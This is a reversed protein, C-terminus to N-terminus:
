EPALDIVPTNRSLDTLIYDLMAEVRTDFNIFNESKGAWMAWYKLDMTNILQATPHMQLLQVTDSIYQSTTNIM